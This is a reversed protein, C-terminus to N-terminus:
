ISNPIKAEIVLGTALSALRIQAPSHPATSSKNEDSTRKADRTEGRLTYFPDTM